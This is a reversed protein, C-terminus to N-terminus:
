EGESKGPRVDGNGVWTDGTWGDLDYDAMCKDVFALDDAVRGRRTATMLAEMRVAEHNGVYNREYLEHRGAFESGIADWLLRMIKIKEVAEIGGAGPFYADVYERAQPTKLDASSVSSILAGAVVQEVIERVAAWATPAHVRYFQGHYLNPTVVGRAPDGWQEPELAMASSLAWFVNRWVLAEGIKVQVGRFDGTGNTAIAKQLLGVLLDMKVAFRVVGHFASRNVFGSAPFFAKSRDIDGNILVNEWPIEVKDFVVLADNEDFRSSLPYDFPSGNVAANMEYSPRCLIKVGPTGTAVIFALAAEPREVVHGASAVFLYNTTAAGTGVLKAGSVVIGNDTTDVVQVVEPHNASPERSRDVPPNLLVHSFHWVKQQVEAYWRRANEEYPAYFEANGGLTALYAAMFDPARGMWGYSLRAWTEIAERDRLLDDASKPLRFFSHTFGGDETPSTLKAKTEPDHLADYLRALSRAGNRFAPHETVDAVREGYVWVERDDRLSALFEDGTLPAV